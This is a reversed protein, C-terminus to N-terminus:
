KAKNQSIFRRVGIGNLWMRAIHSKKHWANEQM